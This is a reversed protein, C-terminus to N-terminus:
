FKTSSALVSNDSIFKFIEAFILQMQIEFTNSLSNPVSNFKQIMLGSHLKFFQFNKPRLM